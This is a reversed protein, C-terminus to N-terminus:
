FYLISIQLPTLSGIFQAFLIHIDTESKSKIKVGDIYVSALAKRKEEQKSKLANEFVAKTLDYFDESQLYNADIKQESLSKFQVSLEKVFENVRNQQIRGHIDFAIENIATGVFPIAGIAGKIIGISSEKLVLNEM